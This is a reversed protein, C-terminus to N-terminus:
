PQVGCTAVLRIARRALEVVGRRLADTEANRGRLDIHRLFWLKLNQSSNQVVVRTHGLLLLPRLGTQFHGLM